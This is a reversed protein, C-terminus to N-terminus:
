RPEASDPEDSIWYAAIVEGDQHIECVYSVGMPGRMVDRDRGGKARHRTVAGALATEAADHSPFLEREINAHGKIRGNLWPM